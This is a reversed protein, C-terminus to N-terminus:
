KSFWSYGIMIMNVNTGVNRDATYANSVHHYKYAITLARDERLMYHIGADLNGAINARRGEWPVATSFLVLGSNIGVFPKIKCGEGLIFKIGAPWIGFGYVNHTPEVGDVPPGSPDNRVLALPVFDFTYEFATHLKTGVVRGYRIGALWTTRYITNGIPTRSKISLAGWIGWENVGKRLFEPYVEPAALEESNEDKEDEAILPSCFLALFAILCLLRLLSASWMM